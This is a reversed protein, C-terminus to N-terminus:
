DAPKFLILGRDEMANVLGLTEEASVGRATVIDSVTRKGDCLSLVQDMDEDLRFNEVRFGAVEIMSQLPVRPLEGMPRREIRSTVPSILPILRPVDEPAHRTPVQFDRHRALFIFCGHPALLDAMKYKQRRTLFLARRYLDADHMLPRLDYSHEDFFRVLELGAGDLLDFMQDMTFVVERPHLFMDTMHEDRQVWAPLDEGIRNPNKLFHGHPLTAFFRRAVEIQKDMPEKGTLMRLIEQVMLIETRGYATYLYIAIMGDAKMYPVLNRLGKLPDALAVLVGTCLVLDYQKTPPPLANIDQHWLKVDTAGVDDLKKRAVALSAESLDFGELTAGPSNLALLRLSEGTGCGADLIDRGVPSRWRNLAKYNLWTYNAWGDVSPPKDSIPGPFPYQEYMARVRATVTQEDIM